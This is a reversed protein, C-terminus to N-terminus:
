TKVYHLLRALILSTEDLEGPPPVATVFDTLESQMQSVDATLVTLV